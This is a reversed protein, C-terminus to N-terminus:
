QPVWGSREGCGGAHVVRLGPPGRAAMAGDQPWGLSGLRGLPAVSAALIAWRAELVALIAGLHGWSPGFNGWSPEFLGELRSLLAGFPAEPPGSSAFVM